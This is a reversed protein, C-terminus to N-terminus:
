YNFFCVIKKFNLKYFEMVFQISPSYSLSHYRFLISRDCYLKPYPFFKEIEEDPYIEKQM